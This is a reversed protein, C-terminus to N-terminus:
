ITKMFKWKILAILQGFASGVPCLFLLAAITDYNIEAISMHGRLSLAVFSYTLTIAVGISAYKISINTLQLGNNGSSGNHISINFVVFAIFIMIIPSLLLSLTFM